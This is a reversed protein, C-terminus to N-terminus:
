PRRSSGAPRRAAPRPSAPAELARDLERRAAAADLGTARLLDLALSQIQHVLVSTTLDSREDLAATARAAARLALRRAEDEHGEREFSVGVRRLAGGLDRVAATVEPPAPEGSRGQRLAASGLVRLDRVAVRLHHAAEGSREVYPRYRRRGPAVRATDRAVELAAVLRSEDIAQLRHIAALAEEAGADDLADALEDLAAAAEGVVSAAADAVARHPDLPFLLVSIVLAVGGGVLADILRTPEFGSTARPLVVVLLASISAQNVFMPSRGLAIAALRVALVVLVIQWGGRGIVAVVLDALYIGIGIGLVMEVATRGRRGQTAQLAVVAAIPAFFPQSHGPILRALQWAVGAGAAVQVTPWLAPRLRTWREGVVTELRAGV